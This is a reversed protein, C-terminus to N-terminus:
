NPSGLSSGIAFSALDFGRMTAPSSMPVVLTAQAMPRNSLPCSSIMPTPVAGLEPMRWPTPEQCQGQGPWALLSGGACAAVQGIVARRTGM